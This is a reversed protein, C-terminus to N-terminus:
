LLDGTLRATADIASADSSGPSIGPRDRWPLRPAARRWQRFRHSPGLVIADIRLDPYELSRM